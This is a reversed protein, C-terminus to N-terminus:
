TKRGNRKMMRHKVSCTMRKYLRNGEAQMGKGQTGREETRTLGTQRAEGPFAVRGEEM